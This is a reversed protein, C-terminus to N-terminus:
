LGATFPYFWSPVPLVAEERTEFCSEVQPAAREAGIRRSDLVATPVKTPLYRDIDASIHRRVAHWVGHRLLANIQITGKFHQIL